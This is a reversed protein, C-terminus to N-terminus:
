SDMIRWFGYFIEMGYGGCIVLVMGSHCMKGCTRNSSTFRTMGDAASEECQFTDIRCIQSLKVLRISLNTYTCVLLSLYLHITTLLFCSKSGQKKRENDVINEVTMGADNRSLLIAASFM